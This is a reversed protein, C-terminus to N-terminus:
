TVRTIKGRGMCAACVYAQTGGTVVGKVIKPSLRILAIASSAVGTDVDCIRCVWLDVNSQATEHRGGKVVKLRQDKEGM